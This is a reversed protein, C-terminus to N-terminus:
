CAIRHISCFQLILARAGGPGDIVFAFVPQDNRCIQASNWRWGPTAQLRWETQENASNDMSQRELHM